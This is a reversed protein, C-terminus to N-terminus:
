LCFNNEDAVETTDLMSVVKIDNKKIFKKVLKLAIKLDRELVKVSRHKISQLQTNEDPVEALIGNKNLFRAIQKAESRYNTWLLTKTKVPENIKM